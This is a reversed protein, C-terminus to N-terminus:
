SGPSKFKSSSIKDGFPIPIKCHDNDQVVDLDPIHEMKGTGKIEMSKGLHDRHEYLVYRVDKPLQFRISSVKDNFQDHEVIISSYDRLTSQFTGHIKLCRDNFDTDDYLEIIGERTTTIKSQNTNPYFETCQLYQGDASKRHHCAYVALQQDPTIYVGAGANFNYRGSGPGFTKADTDRLIRLSPIILKFSSSRVDQGCFSLEYLRARNKGIWPPIPAWGYSNEAGIMYIRGTAELLLQIVQYKPHKGGKGTAGYTITKKDALNFGDKLHIGNSLYFDLRRKEDAEGDTWVACIYHQNPLRIMSAAGAKTSLRKIAVQDGLDKPHMPDEVDIFRIEASKNDDGEIPAVLIHDLISLGGCHWLGSRDITYMEVLQDGNQQYNENSGILGRADTRFAQLLHSDVRCIFLQSAKNQQLEGGSFIVHKGDTTRVLGQFHRRRGAEKKFLEVNDADYPEYAHSQDLDANSLIGVYEGRTPIKDFAAVVDPITIVQTDKILTAPNIDIGPYPM